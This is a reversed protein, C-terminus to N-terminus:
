RHDNIGDEETLLDMCVAYYHFEEGDWSVVQLFRNPNSVEDSGVIFIIDNSRKIEFDVVGLLRCHPNFWDKGEDPLDARSVHTGDAIAYM